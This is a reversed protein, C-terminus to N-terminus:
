FTTVSVSYLGSIKCDELEGENKELMLRFQSIQTSKTQPDLYKVALVVLGLAKEFEDSQKLNNDFYAKRGAM